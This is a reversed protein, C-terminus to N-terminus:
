VVRRRVTYNPHSSPSPTIFSEEVPVPQSVRALLSDVISSFLAYIFRM